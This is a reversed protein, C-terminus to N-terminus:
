FSHSLSASSTNDMAHSSLYFLADTLWKGDARDMDFSLLVWTFSVARSFFLCCLTTSFLLFLLSCMPTVCFPLHPPSNKRGLMRSSVLANADSMLMMGVSLSSAIVVFLLFFRIVLM